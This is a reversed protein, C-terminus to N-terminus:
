DRCQVIELFGIGGVAEDDKTNGGSVEASFFQLVRRRQTLVVDVGLMDRKRNKRPGCKVADVGDREVIEEAIGFFTHGAPIDMPVEGLENDIALALRESAILDVRVWGIDVEM